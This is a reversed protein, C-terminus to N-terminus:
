LYAGGVTCSSAIWTKTKVSHCVDVEFKFETRKYINYGRDHFFFCSNIIRQLQEGLGNLKRGVDAADRGEVNCVVTSRFYHSIIHYYIGLFSTMM